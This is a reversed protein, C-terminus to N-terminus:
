RTANAQVCNVSEETALATVRLQQLVASADLNLAGCICRFSYPWETDTALLWRKAEDFHQRGQSDASLRYKEICDLADRLVAIMLRQEPSSRRSRFHQSPLIIDLQAYGGSADTM